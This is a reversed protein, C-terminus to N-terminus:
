PSEYVGSIFWKRKNIIIEIGLSEIKEFEFQKKREGAIDSRLFLMLEGGNATKDERWLSYNDVSFQCHVFSTELKTEALFLMDVTGKQLLEKIYCIKYHISNINLYVCVFRKRHKSRINSLEDFIDTSSSVSDDSDSTVSSIHGLGPSIPTAEDHYNNVLPASLDNEDHNGEFFSDSFMPLRNICGKCYFTEDYTEFKKYEDLSLTSCKKTLGFTVFIM